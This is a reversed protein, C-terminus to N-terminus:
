RVMERLKAATAKTGAWARKTREILVIHDEFMARFASLDALSIGALKVFQLEYEWGGGLRELAAKIKAPVIYSKDHCARFENLSRGCTEGAGPRSARLARALTSRAVGLKKAAQTMTSGDQMAARAQQASLPM